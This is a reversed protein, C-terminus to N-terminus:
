RTGAVDGGVGGTRQHNTRGFYFGIIVMLINTLFVLVAEKLDRLAVAFLVVITVTIAITAQTVEWIRNINRQGASKLDQEATTTPPLSERQPKNWEAITKKEEGPEGNGM